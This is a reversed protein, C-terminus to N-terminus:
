PAVEIQKMLDLVAKKLTPNLGDMLVLEPVWERVKAYNRSLLLGDLVLLGGERSDRAAPDMEIAAFVADAARVWDNHDILVYAARWIRDRTTGRTRFHRGLVDAAAVLREESDALPVLVAADRERGAIRGAARDQKFLEEAAYWASEACFWAHEGRPDAEIAALFRTHAEAYEKRTYLLEGFAYLVAHARREGAFTDAYLTYAARTLGLLGGPEKGAGIWAKHWGAAAARIRAEALDRGAEISPAGEGQSARWGSGEAVAAGLAQLAALRADEDGLSAHVDAIGAHADPVKTSTGARALLEAYTALAATHQGAAHEAQARALLEAALAERDKRQQEEDAGRDRRQREARRQQEELWAIAERVEKVVDAWKRYTEIYQEVKRVTEPDEKELLPKLLKWAAKAARQEAKRDKKGAAVQAAAAKADDRAQAKAAAERERDAAQREREAREAAGPDPPPAAAALDELGPLDLVPRVRYGVAVPELSEQACATSVEVSLGGSVFNGEADLQGCTQEAIEATLVEQVVYMTSLDTGRDAAARLKKTCADTPMLDLDPISTHLPAGFKMKKVIGGGADVGVGLWKVSVGMQLQSTVETKSYTFSEGSVSFCDRLKERHGLRGSLPDPEEAFIVGARFIGSMEPTPTWGAKELIAALAPIEASSAAPGAGTKGGKRSAAGAPHPVSIGVLGLVVGVCLFTREGTKM